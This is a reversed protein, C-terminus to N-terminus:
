LDIYLILQFAKVSATIIDKPYNTLTIYSM